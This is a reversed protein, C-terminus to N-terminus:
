ESAQDKNERRGNNLEAEIRDLQTELQADIAGSGWQVRCGGPSVEQEEVVKIHQWQEQMDILSRAFLRAADADAPNVAITVDSRMGALQVAEELNALVVEREYEGVHHAVRRAIAMALDILDRRASAYWSMRYENIQSIVQQCTDILNKQQQAFERGAEDLAEQRGDQRGKELGESYGAQHGEEQAAQRIIDAEKKADHIISEATARGAAIMKRAEEMVDDLRFRRLGLAELRNVSDAKIVTSKVAM